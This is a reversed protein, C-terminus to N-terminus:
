ETKGRKKPSKPLKQEELSRRRLKDLYKQTPIPRIEGLEQEKPTKSTKVRGGITEREPTTNMSERQEQLFLNEIKPSTTEQTKTAKTPRTKKAAAM